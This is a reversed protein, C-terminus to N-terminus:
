FYHDTTEGKREAEEYMWVGMNVKLQALSKKVEKNKKGNSENARSITRCDFM